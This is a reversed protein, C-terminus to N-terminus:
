SRVFLFATTINALLSDPSAAAVIDFLSGAPITVAAGGSTALVPVTGGASWTLSGVSSGAVRVTWATSADAAISAEVLWGLLNPLLVHAERFRQAWIVESASPAGRVFVAARQPGFEELRFLSDPTGDSYLTLRCGPLLEIDTTGRRITVPNTSAADLSVMFPRKVAPWTVVRGAVSAGTIAMRSMARVQAQTPAANGASVSIALTETIAADLLAMGTSHTVEKQLQNAQIFPIALNPSASV